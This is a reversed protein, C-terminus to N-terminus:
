VDISKINIEEIEVKLSNPEGKDIVKLDVEYEVDLTGTIKM